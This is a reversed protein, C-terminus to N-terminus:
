IAVRAPIPRDTKVPLRSSCGIINVTTTLTRVPCEFESTAFAEGKGCGAGRVADEDVEMKCGRPCITCTLNMKKM